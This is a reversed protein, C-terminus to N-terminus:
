LVAAHIKSDPNDLYRSANLQNLWGGKISLKVVDMNSRPRIRVTFCSDGTGNYAPAIIVNIPAQDKFAPAFSDPSTWIDCGKATFTDFRVEDRGPKLWAEVLYTGDKNRSVLPYFKVGCARLSMALRVLQVAASAVAKIFSLITEM